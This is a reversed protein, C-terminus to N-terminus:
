PRHRPVQARDGQLRRQPDTIGRGRRGRRYPWRRYHPFLPLARVGGLGSPRDALPARQRAAPEGAGLDLHDPGTTDTWRSSTETLACTVWSANPWSQSGGPWPPPADRGTSKAASSIASRVSSGMPRIAIWEDLTSRCCRGGQTSGDGRSMVPTPRGYRCPGM